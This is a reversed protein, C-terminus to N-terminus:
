GCDGGRRYSTGLELAEEVAKSTAVSNHHRANRRGSFMRLFDQRREIQPPAIVHLFPHCVLLACLTIVVCRPSANGIDALTRRGIM